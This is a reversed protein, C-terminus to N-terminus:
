DGPQYVVMEVGGPLVMVIVKGWGEDKPEGRFKIGKARLEAVTADIDDCVFGM